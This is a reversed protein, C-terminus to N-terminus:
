QQVGRVIKNWYRWSYFLFLGQNCIPGLAATQHLFDLGFIEHSQESIYFCTLQVRGNQFLPPLFSVAAYSFYTQYHPSSHAGSIQNTYMIIPVAGWYIEGPWPYITNEKDTLVMDRYMFLFWLIMDDAPFHSSRYFSLVYALFHVKPPYPSRIFMFYNSWMVWGVRLEGVASQNSYWKKPPYSPAYMPIYTLVEPTKEKLFFKTIDENPM